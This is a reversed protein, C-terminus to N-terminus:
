GDREVLSLYAAELSPRDERVGHVRAGAGVLVAVVAPVDTGAALTATFRHRGSLEIATVMPALLERWATAEGEVDIAVRDAGLLRRRLADPSDIARLTRQLVAVRDALMEAEDLQHTSLVVAVGDARATRVVERVTHAAAPDLGSTPEDLLLVAPDALFARALAVRQRLGKSLTGARDDARSALGFRELLAAVRRAPADLGHLRAYTRLNQDVTLRDWLGPVETLLGVRGSRRASARDGLRVGAVVGGGHTPTLLGALLRLTTTKGAGNPGLLAVIEAAHVQLSLAELAVRRGFSKGLDQVDVATDLTASV